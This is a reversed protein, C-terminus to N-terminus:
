HGISDFYVKSIYTPHILV